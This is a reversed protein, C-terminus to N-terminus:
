SKDHPLNKVIDKLKKIVTKDECRMSFDRIEINSLLVEGTTPNSMTIKMGSKVFISKDKNRGSFTDTQSHCNPCLSRLNSLKNNVNIGDIHDVQMQLPQDNWKDIRCISCTNSLLGEAYLRKKISSSLLKGKVLYEHITKKM